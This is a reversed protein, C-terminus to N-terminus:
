HCGGQCSNCDGCVNKLTVAMNCIEFDYESLPYIREKWGEKYYGYIFCKEKKFCIRLPVVEEDNGGIMSPRISPEIVDATNNRKNNILLRDTSTILSAVSGDEYFALSNDDGNIGNANMDFAAIRGIPTNIFLPYAPEFSKVKGNPYFAIGSRIKVMGGYLPVMLFEKPWLTLSKLQGEEYFHLSIVKKDYKGFPLELPIAQALELENEETWYGTIKGNLPFIRKLSGDEYFTALEAKLQGLPTNVATQREMAIRKLNGNQYFAISKTYKKRVAETTYQPILIGYPTKLIVEEELSCEMLPGNKYYEPSSIEKLCGYKTEYCIYEKGLSNEEQRSKRLIADILGPILIAFYCSFIQKYSCLQNNQLEFILKDWKIISM